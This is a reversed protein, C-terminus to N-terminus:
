ATRDRACPSHLFRPASPHTCADTVSIKVHPTWNSTLAGLRKCDVTRRMYPSVRVDLRSDIRKVIPAAIATTDNHSPSSGYSIIASRTVTLSPTTSPYCVRGYLARLFTRASISKGYLARLFTWASICQSAHRLASQPRTNPDTGFVNPDARPPAARPRCRWAARACTPRRIRPTM